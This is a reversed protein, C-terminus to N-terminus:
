NKALWWDPSLVVAWIDGKEPGAPEDPDMEGYGYPDPDAVVFIRAGSEPVRYRHIDTTTADNDPEVSCGLRTIAASLEDFKARPAFHGYANRLPAPVATADCSGLRHVQVSIGFCPWAGDNEQFSLEVLGYDRRMLGQSRDDLYDTGLKTEWGTPQTGIGGGLVDGRTAFHAYFDLDPM